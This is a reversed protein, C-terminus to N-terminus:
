LNNIWLNPNAAHCVLSSADRHESDVPSSSGAFCLPRPSLDHLKYLATCRSSAPVRSKVMTSHLLCRPRMDEPTPGGSYLKRAAADCLVRHPSISCHLCHLLLRLPEPSTLSGDGLLARQLLLEAKHGLLQGQQLRLLSTGNKHRCKLFFYPLPRNVTDFIIRQYLLFSHHFDMFDSWKLPRPSKDLYKKATQTHTWDSLQTRCYLPVFELLEPFLM